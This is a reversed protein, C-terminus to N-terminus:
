TMLAHYSSFPKLIFYPIMCEQCGRPPTTTLPRSGKNTSRSNMKASPPTPSTTLFQENKHVDCTKKFEPLDISLPKPM